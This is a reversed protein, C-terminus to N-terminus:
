WPLQLTMQMAATWEAAAMALLQGRQKARVEASVIRPAKTWFHRHSDAERGMRFARIWTRPTFAAPTLDTNLM